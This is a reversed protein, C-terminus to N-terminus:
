FPATLSMLGALGLLSGDPAFSAEVRARQSLFADVCQPDFQSGAQRQLEAFAAEPSMAPRYPRDSTMADFADAVAVIRAGRPIAEGALGDPYGRGDWREHHHRIIPIMATLDAIEQLIGAGRLVHLKMTDFEAPTLRGPKSLIADPVGIKGIDHLPTALRIARLEEPTLRLQEAILLSYATVRQTHQGTYQDRLEVARALATVTSLFLTRQKQMLQGSEIGVSVSAAIADALDFHMQSFPPQLPGRDLHLVGLPQRPSRLLACIISSMAGHVLSEAREAEANVDRCLFSEAGQFCRRALTSSFCRPSTLKGRPSCVARVQLEGTVEDALLICGRQAEFAEVVDKLVTQLLEELSAAHCLHYGARLLTLFHKGQQGPGEASLSLREIAQEWSRRTSAQVNMLLGSARLRSQGNAPPPIPVGEVATVRLGISGCELLDLEHLKQGGEDVRIRNLFTGNTTGLDRVLWGEPTPVVEAHQRSVTPDNLVIELDDRRGIRLRRDSEWKRGEFGSGIGSLIIRSHGM